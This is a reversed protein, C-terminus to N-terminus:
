MSSLSARGLRLATMEPTAKQQPSAMTLEGLAWKIFEYILIMLGIDLIANNNNNNCYKSLPPRGFLYQRGEM